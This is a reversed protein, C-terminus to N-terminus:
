VIPDTPDPSPPKKAEGHSCFTKLWVSATTEAPVGPERV